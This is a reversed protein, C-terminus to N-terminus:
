RPFGVGKPERWGGKRKRLASQQPCVEVEADEDYLYM